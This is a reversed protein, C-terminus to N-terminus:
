RIKDKIKYWKRKGMDELDNSLSTQHNLSLSRKKEGILLREAKYLYNFRQPNKYKIADCAYECLSNIENILDSASKKQDKPISNIENYLIDNGITMLYLNNTIDISHKVEPMLKFLNPLTKSIKKLATISESIGNDKHAQDKEDMADGNRKLEQFLLNPMLQWSSKETNFSFKEEDFPTKQKLDKTCATSYLMKLSENLKSITKHDIITVDPKITIPELKLKPVPNPNPEPLKPKPKPLKHEPVPEPIPEPLKPKPEPVPEPLKHEPVPEPIPEPLKPKHEPLKHEPLKPKPEPVPEPLKHEPVPEPIPEPLKHEPLKHEPLKPKPEPVPEPIKPKPDPIKPKPRMETYINFDHALLSRPPLKKKCKKYILIGAAALIGVGGIVIPAIPWLREKSGWENVTADQTLNDIVAKYVPIAANYAASEGLNFAYQLANSSQNSYSLESISQAVTTSYADADISGILDSSFQSFGYYTMTPVLTFLTNKLSTLKDPTLEVGIAILNNALQNDIQDRITNDIHSLPKEVFQNLLEAQNLMDTVVTTVKTTQNEGNPNNLDISNLITLLQINASNISTKYNTICSTQNKQLQTVNGTYYLVEKQTECSTIDNTPAETISENGEAVSINNITQQSINFAEFAAYAINQNAEDIQPKSENIYRQATSLQCGTADCDNFDTIQQKYIMNITQTPESSNKVNNYLDGKQSTITKNAKDNNTILNKNICYQQQHSFVQFPFTTQASTKIYTETPANNQQLLRNERRLNPNHMLSKTDVLNNASSNHEKVLSSFILANFIFKSSFITKAMETLTYIAKGSTSLNDYSGKDLTNKDNQANIELNEQHEDFKANIENYRDRIELIANSTVFKKSNQFTLSTPFGAQSKAEHRAHNTTNNQEISYLTALPEVLETLHPSIKGLEEKIKQIKSESSNYGIEKLKNHLTDHFKEISDKQMSIADQAYNVIYSEFETHKVEQGDEGKGNNINKLILSIDKEFRNAEEIPKEHRVENTYSDTIQKSLKDLKGEIENPNKEINKVTDLIF